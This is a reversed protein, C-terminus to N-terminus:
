GAPALVTVRPFAKEVAPATLPIRVYEGRQWLPVQDAFNPSGIWGDQGGFLVFYNEDPDSMDSVHRSQAGFFANHPEDTLNHATKLITERSGPVAIEGLEYRGGLVPLNGLVHRVRITHIDGWARGSAAMAAAGDLAPNLAAAWQAESLLAMDEILVNRIFSMSKIYEFEQQRGLQAYVAPALRTLLAEFM